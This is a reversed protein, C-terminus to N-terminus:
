DEFSWVKTVKHNLVELSHVDLYKDANRELQDTVDKIPIDNDINIEVELKVTKYKMKEDGQQQTRNVM